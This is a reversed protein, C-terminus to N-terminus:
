PMGQYDAADLRVRESMFEYVLPIDTNGWLQFRRIQTIDFWSEDYFFRDGPKAELTIARTDDDETALGADLLSPVSVQLTTNRQQEVGFRSYPYSEGEPSVFARVEIADDFTKEHEPIELHIPDVAPPESNLQKYQLLPFFRRDRHRLLRHANNLDRLGPFRTQVPM